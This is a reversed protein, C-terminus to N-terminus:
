SGDAPIKTEDNFHQIKIQKTRESQNTHLVQIYGDMGWKEGWSNKLIWFDEGTKEELGYGVALVAHDLRSKSCDGRSYIGGEYHHFSWHNSDIAM